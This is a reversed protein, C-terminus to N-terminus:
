DKRVFEYFIKGLDEVHYGGELIKLTPVNLREAIMKNMKHYVDISLNFFHSPDNEYTDAGFSIILYTPNFKGIVDLCESLQILYLENTTGENMPFNHVMLKEEDTDKYGTFYPYEDDPNAHISVYMWDCQEQKVIKKRNHDLVIEQTGNGHHLDLDLIVIKTNKSESYKNLCGAAIAANNLFCYGGCLNIGAHHGPPRCIAVVDSKGSLLDTAGSLACNASSYIADWSTETITAEMDMCYYGVRGFISKPPQKRYSGVAFTEPVVGTKPLGYSIWEAYINKLHEVYDDSHVEKFLDIPFCKPVTLDFQDKHKSLESLISIVRSPKDLYEKIEGGLIETRPSHLKHDDSYYVTLM